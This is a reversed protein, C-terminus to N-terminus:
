WPYAESFFLRPHENIVLDFHAKNNEIRANSLAVTIYMHPRFEGWEEHATEEATSGDQEGTPTNDKLYAKFSISLDEAWLDRVANLKDQTLNPMSLEIYGVTNGKKLVNLMQPLSLVSGSVPPATPFSIGYSYDPAVNEVWFIYPHQQIIEEEPSNVPPSIAYQINSDVNVDLSNHNNATIYIKKKQLIPSMDVVIWAAASHPVIAAPLPFIGPDPDSGPEKKVDFLLALSNLKHYSSLLEETHRARTEEAKEAAIVMLREKMFGLCLGLIACCLAIWGRRTIRKLFAADNKRFTEGGFASLFSVFTLFLLAINIISLNM